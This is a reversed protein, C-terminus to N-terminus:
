VSKRLLTDWRSSITKLIRDQNEKLLQKTDNDVETRVLGDIMSVLHDPTVDSSVFTVYRPGVEELLSSGGTTEFTLVKAGLYLAERLTRGYSEHKACSILVDSRCYEELLERGSLEGSFRLVKRAILDSSEIKLENALPGAGVIRADYEYGRSDLMRLFKIFDSPNREEHLRGVFILRPVPNRGVARSCRFTSDLTILSPALYVDIKKDIRNQLLELSNRDVVRVQDVLGLILLTIRPLVRSIFFGRSKFFNLFDFHLQSEILVRKKISIKVLLAILTSYWPDGAILIVANEKEQSLFKRSKWFYQHLHKSNKLNVIDLFQSKFSSDNKYRGLVVLKGKEGREGCKQDFSEAYKVHRDIVDLKDPDLNSKTDIMYITTM